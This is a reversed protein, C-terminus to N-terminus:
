FLEKWAVSADITASNASTGSVTLTDGPNLIIKKLILAENFTDNKGAMFGDTVDTGGTLTTGSTDIEVVSNNTNIDSYSPAGGLTTNKVVRINGLNNAANAEISAAIGLMLIDIFNTKSFYTARNRITFIAVETTVTTKERIGSSNIPMHLEILETKGEIFYAYSAGKLVIDSTTAKNNVWITHHFNPMHVSPTINVNPYDLTHVLIINTTDDDAMFLNIPGAGLYQFQIFFVNLKTQDLTMGSPGTGDMPDDWASQAVSTKADNQFRHFGFTTGDYGVMFGNKFAASSGTEDAIGIYQETAAVPSTFLATFRLLGGLGPRYRAHQRTQFLATSATTTSTGMVVMASAQTVTGGNVVTNENLDTNDVTYEFSGQLIPSLEAVRLDGFATLPRDIFPKYTGFCVSVLLLVVLLKKKMIDGRFYIGIAEM